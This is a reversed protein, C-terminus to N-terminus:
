SVVELSGAPGLYDNQLELLEEFYTLGINKYLLVLEVFDKHTNM